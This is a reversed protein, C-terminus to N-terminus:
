ISQSKELYIKSGYMILLSVSLQTIPSINDMGMQLAVEDAIPELEQKEEQTLKIQQGKIKNKKYIKNALFAFIEPCILDIFFLLTAGKIKFSTNEDTQKQSFSEKEEQNTENEAQFFDLPSSDTLSNADKIFGNVSSDFYNESNSVEGYQSATKEQPVQVTKMERQTNKEVSKNQNLNDLNEGNQKLLEIEEATAKGNKFHRKAWMLKAQEKNLGM